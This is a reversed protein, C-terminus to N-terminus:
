QAFGAARPLASSLWCQQEVRRCLVAQLQLALEAQSLVPTSPQETALQAPAHDRGASDAEFHDRIIRGGAQVGEEGGM